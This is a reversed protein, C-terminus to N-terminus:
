EGDIGGLIDPEIMDWTQSELYFARPLITDNWYGENGMIPNGTTQNLIANAIDAAISAVWVTNIETSRSSVDTSQVSRKGLGNKEIFDAVRGFTVQNRQVGASIGAIVHTVSVSGRKTSIIGQKLPCSSRRSPSSEIRYIIQIM